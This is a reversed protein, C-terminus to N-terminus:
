ESDGGLFNHLNQAPAEAIRLGKDLQLWSKQSDWGTQVCNRWDLECGTNIIITESILCCVCLGSSKNRFPCHEWVQHKQISKTVWLSPSITKQWTKRREGKCHVTDVTSYLYTLSLRLQFFLFRLAFSYLHSHIALVFARLVKTQIEDLFEAESRGQSRLYYTCDKATAAAIKAM